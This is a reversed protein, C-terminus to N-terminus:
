HGDASMRPRGDARERAPRPLTGLALGAVALTLLLLLYGQLDAALVFDGEPRTLALRLVMGAFGVAFPLRTSWGPGVALLTAVVAAAALALGWWRGHVAVAAVASLAGAGLLALAVLARVVAM